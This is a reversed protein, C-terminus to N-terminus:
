IMWDNESNEFFSYTLYGEHGAISFKHTESKRTNPLHRRAPKATQQSNKKNISTVLPQAAQSGDRYVAFAKLGMKWGMIFAQMVEEPTTEHPMNFTKSVAGSLFPQVAAVMKVHGKWSISRKGNAPKVACDFISLHEPKLESAGEM